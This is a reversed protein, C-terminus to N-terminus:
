KRFITFWILLLPHTYVSVLCYFHISIRLGDFYWIVKYIRYYIIVACWIQFCIIIYYVSVIKCHDTSLRTAGKWTNWIYVGSIPSIVITYWMAIDAFLNNRVSTPLNSFWITILCWGGALIIIIHFRHEKVTTM